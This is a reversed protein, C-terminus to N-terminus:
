TTVTGDSNRKYITCPVMEGDVKRFAYAPQMTGDSLRWYLHTSLGWDAVLTHDSYTTCITSATIRTDGLYWGGFTGTTRTPTPLEGYVQGATVTQKTPSVTGGQADFTVTYTAAYWVAYLTTDGTVSISAGASYSAAGGESTAWGGFTYGAKTPIGSPLTFSVAGSGSSTQPPFDGSGGQLDYTLTCSVENTTVSLTASDVEVWSTTYSPETSPRLVFNSVGAQLFNTVDVTINEGPSSYNITVNTGGVNADTYGTDGYLENLVHTVNGTATGHDSVHFSLTAATVSSAPFSLPNTKAIARYFTSSKRGIYVPTGTSHYKDTFSDASGRELTCSITYTKAM